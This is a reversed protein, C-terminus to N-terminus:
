QVLRVGGLANPLPEPSIVAAVDSRTTSNGSFKIQDAILPMYRANQGFGSSGTIELSQAPTYIAGLINTNADGNLKNTRGAGSDRDQFLLIGGYPGDQDAALDVQAGSSISFGANHGLLHFMLDTGSVQAQSNIGLEGWVTYMGPEFHVIGKLDLGGCYVGPSLTAVEDPKVSVNRYECASSAPPRIDEFPDALRRCRTRPRPMLDAGGSVGGASCLDETIISASGQVTLGNSATSNSHVACGDAVFTTNGAFTLAGSATHNLALVCIPAGDDLRVARSDVTISLHDIELLELFSTRVQASALVTLGTEDPSATMEVPLQQPRNAEFVSEAAASREDDYGDLNAGALAAADAAAQLKAKHQGAISYDITAGALSVIPLAALGFIIAVNGGRDRLFPNWM